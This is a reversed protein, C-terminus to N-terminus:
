KRVYIQCQKMDTVIEKIVRINTNNHKDYCERIIAKKSSAGM